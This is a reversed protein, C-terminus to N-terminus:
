FICIRMFFMQDVSMGLTEMKSLGVEGAELAIEEELAPEEVFYDNENTCAFFLFLSCVFLIIKKM